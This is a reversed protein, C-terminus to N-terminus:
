EFDEIEFLAYDFVNPRGYAITSKVLKMFTLFDSEKAIVQCGASWNDVTKSNLGARHIDTRGNEKYSKFGSIKYLFDLIKNKNNDRIYLIPAIQEMAEKGKHTGVKYCDKHFFPVVIATGNVNMPNERYYIGPDTTAACQVTVYSTNIDKTIVGVLDDFTNASADKNRIGFINAHMIDDNFIYGKKTYAKKIEEATFLRM